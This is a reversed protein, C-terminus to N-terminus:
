KAFRHFIRAKTNDGRFKYLQSSLLAQKELEAQLDKKADIQLHINDSSNTIEQSAGDTIQIIIKLRHNRSADPYGLFELKSLAENILHRVGNKNDIAWGANPFSIRLFRDHTDSVTLVLDSTLFTPQTAIATLQLRRSEPHGAVAGELFYKINSVNPGLAARSIVPQPLVERPTQIGILATRTQLHAPTDRRFVDAALQNAKPDHGTTAVVKRSQGLKSASTGIPQTPGLGLRNLISRIIRM